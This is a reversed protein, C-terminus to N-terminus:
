DVPPSGFFFTEISFADPELPRAFLWDETIPGTQGPQAKRHLVYIFGTHHSTTSTGYRYAVCGTLVIATVIAKPSTTQAQRFMSPDITFSSTGTRIESPFLFQGLRRRDPQDARACTEKQRKLPETFVDDSFSELYPTWENYVDTAVSRGVNRLTWVPFLAAAGNVLQTPVTLAMSVSVWPRDTLELQRNAVETANTARRFLGYTLMVYITTVVLTASLIVNQITHANLQGLWTFLRGSNKLFLAYGDINDNTGTDDTEM